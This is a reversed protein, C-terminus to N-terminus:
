YRTGDEYFDYENVEITDIIAEDSILYEYQDRLMALYCDGTDVKFEDALDEHHDYADDAYQEVLKNWEERYRMAAKYTATSEGHNKLILDVATDIDNDDIKVDFYGRYIDFDCITIGVQKADYYVPEWWDDKVNIDRLNNIAKKKAEESLENFSYLNIQITKM